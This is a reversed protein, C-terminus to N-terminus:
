HVDRKPGGKELRLYRIVIGSFQVLIFLEVVMWASFSLGTLQDVYDRFAFLIGLHVTCACLVGGVAQVLTASRKRTERAVFYGLLITSYVARLVFRSPGRMDRQHRVSYFFQVVLLAAIGLAVALYILNDRTSQKM